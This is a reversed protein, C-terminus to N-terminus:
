GYHDHAPVDVPHRADHRCRNRELRAFAIQRERQTQAQDEDREHDSDIRCRLEDLRRSLPPVSLVMNGSEKFFTDKTAPPRVIMSRRVRSISRPGRVTMSPG